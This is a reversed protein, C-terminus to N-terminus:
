KACPNLHNQRLTYGRVHGNWTVTNENVTNEHFQLSASQSNLATIM